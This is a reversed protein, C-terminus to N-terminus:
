KLKENMRQSTKRIILYVALWIVIYIVAFIATFFALVGIEFPIWANLLYCSVYATYITLAHCVLSRGMSWHEIEYFINAGAQVFALLYTSIVAILVEAGSLSFDEINLSIIFYIVAAVIPGFGGAVLGRLVFDKIYKKM